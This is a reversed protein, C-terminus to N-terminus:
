CIIVKMINLGLKDVVERCNFANEYKNEANDEILISSEDVGNKM